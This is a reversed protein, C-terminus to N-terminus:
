HARLRRTRRRDRDIIEVVDMPRIPTPEREPSATADEGTEEEEPTEPIIEFDNIIVSM